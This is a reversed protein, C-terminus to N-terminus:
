LGRRGVEVGKRSGDESDELYSEQSQAGETRSLERPAPLATNRDRRRLAEACGLCSANWGVKWLSLFAPVLWLDGHEAIGDKPLEVTQCGSPEM